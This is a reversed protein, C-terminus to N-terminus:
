KTICLSTLKPLIGNDTVGVSAFYKNFINAKAEDETVANGNSDTLAGIQPRYTIQSNIYKYFQGLNNAQIIEIERKRVLDDHWSTQLDTVCDRYKQQLIIDGPCKRM